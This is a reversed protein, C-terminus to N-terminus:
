RKGQDRLKMSILSNTDIATIEAKKILDILKGEWGLKKYAAAIYSNTDFESDAIRGLIM